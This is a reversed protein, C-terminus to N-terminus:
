DKKSKLAANVAGVDINFPDKCFTGGFTRPGYDYGGTQSSIDLLEEHIEKLSKGERCITEIIFMSLGRTTIIPEKQDKLAMGDGHEYYKKKGVLQWYDGGNLKFARLDFAPNLNNAIRHNAIEGGVIKMEYKRYDPGISSPKFVTRWEKGIAKNAAMIYDMVTLSEPHYRGDRITDRYEDWECHVYNVVEILPLDIIFEKPVNGITSKGDFIDLLIDGERYTKETGNYGPRFTYGATAVELPKGNEDVWRSPNPIRSIDVVKYTHLYRVNPPVNEYLKVRWDSLKKFKDEKLNYLFSEMNKEREPINPGLASIDSAAGKDKGKEPLGGFLQPLITLYSSKIVKNVVDIMNNKQKDDLNTDSRIKEVKDACVKLIFNTYIKIWPDKNNYGFYAVIEKYGSPFELELEPPILFPQEKGDIIMNEENKRGVEYETGQNVLKRERDMLEGSTYFGLESHIEEVAPRITHEVYGYQAEIHNLEELRRGLLDIADKLKKRPVLELDSTRYTRFRGGLATGLVKLANAIGGSFRGRKSPTYKKEEEAM